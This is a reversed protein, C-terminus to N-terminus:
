KNTILKEYCDGESNIRNFGVKCPQGQCCEVNLMAQLFFSKTLSDYSRFQFFLFAPFRMVRKGAKIAFYTIEQILVRFCIFVLSHTLSHTLSHMIFAMKYSMQLIEKEAAM